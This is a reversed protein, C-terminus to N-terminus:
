CEADEKRVIAEDEAESPAAAADPDWDMKKLADAYADLAADFEEPAIETLYDKEMGGRISFCFFPFSETRIGSFRFTGLYGNEASPHRFLTKEFRATPKEPFTLVELRYRNKSRASIVKLYRKTKEARTGTEQIWCTGVYEENKEVAEVLEKREQEIERGTLYNEIRKLERLSMGDLERIIEEPKM